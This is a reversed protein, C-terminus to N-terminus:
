VHRVRGISLKLSCEHGNGAWVEHFRKMSLSNSYGYGTTYLYAWRSIGDGPAEDLIEESLCLLFAGDRAYRLLENLVGRQALFASLLVTSDLVASPM